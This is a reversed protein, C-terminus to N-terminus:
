IWKVVFYKDAPMHNEVLRDGGDPVDGGKLRGIEERRSGEIIEGGEDEDERISEGGYWGKSLGEVM